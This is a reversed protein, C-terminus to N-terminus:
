IYTSEHFPQQQNIQLKIFWGNRNNSANQSGTSSSSSGASVYDGYSILRNDIFAALESFPRNFAIKIQLGFLSNYVCRQGHKFLCFAHKFIHTSFSVGDPAHRVGIEVFEREEHLLLMKKFWFSCSFRWKKAPYHADESSCM